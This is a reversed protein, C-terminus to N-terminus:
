AVLSPRRTRIRTVPQTQCPKRVAALLIRLRYISRHTDLPSNPSTNNTASPSTTTTAYAEKSNQSAPSHCTSPKAQTASPSDPANAPEACTPATPPKHPHRFSPRPRQGAAIRASASDEHGSDRVSEQDWSPARLGQDAGVVSNHAGVRKPPGFCRRARLWTASGASWLRDTASAGFAGAQDDSALRQVGARLAGQEVGGVPAVPSQDGVGRAVGGAEIGGHAGVGLDVVGDSAEFVGSEVFHREAGPVGVSRPGRQADDTECQDGPELLQAEAAREGFGCGFPEAPLELVCGCADHAGGSAGCCAEGVVVGAGWCQEGGVGVGSVGWAGLRACWAAVGCAGVGGVCAWGAGM